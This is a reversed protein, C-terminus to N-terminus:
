VDQPPSSRIRILRYTSKIDMKAMLAGKGLSLVEATMDDVSIYSLSCLEKCINDNVSNCKPSSLDVILRKPIVRKSALYM